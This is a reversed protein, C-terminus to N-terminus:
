KPLSTVYSEIGNRHRAIQAPDNVVPFEAQAITGFSDPRATLFLRAGHFDSIERCISLGLGTGSRKTTFFPDFIKGRVADGIGTGRDKVQVVVLDHQIGTAAGIEIEIDGGNPMSEIANNLLNLFLQVLQHEDGMIRPINSPCSIRVFANHTEAVPSHLSVIDRMLKSLDIPTLTGGESPAMLRLREALATIRAVEVPLLRTATDRYEPDDFRDSLISIFNSISTLPSRIEHAIGAYFRAMMSLREVRRQNAELEIRHRYLLANDIAISTVEGLSEILELESIFYPDGSRRPGLLITGLRRDRRALHIALDFGLGNLLVYEAASTAPAASASLTVVSPTGPREFLNVLVRNCEALADESLTDPPFQELRSGTSPAVIMLCSETAFCRLLISSLERAIEDPLMLRTLQRTALRLEVAYDVRNRYLYPDILRGVVWNGPPLLLVVAVIAIVLLNTPLTATSPFPMTGLGIVVATAVAAIFVLYAASRHVVLRLDLLRHRIISHGVLAILVVAFYPGAWSYHSRGTVAPILLNTTTGGLTFVLLGIGVHLLQAREIGRARHWKVFFIGLATSACVVFYVSFLPFLPGTAREIGAATLSINHAVWPTTASAVSLGLGLLRAVDFFVRSPWPLLTPFVRSFNLFSFPILCASAFTVRGWFETHTGTQVGAIGLVWGAISFTFAAFWRNTGHSSRARLIYTAACLFVLSLAFLPLGKV